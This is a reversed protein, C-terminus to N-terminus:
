GGDTAVIGVRVCEVSAIVGEGDEAGDFWGDDGVVVEVGIGSDGEM